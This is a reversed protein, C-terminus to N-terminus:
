QAPRLDEAEPDLDDARQNRVPEAKRIAVYLWKIVAMAAFYFVASAVARHPEDVWQGGGSLHLLPVIAATIGLRPLTQTVGVGVAGLYAVVSIAWAGMLWMQENSSVRRNRAIWGLKAAALWAFSFYPWIAHFQMAFGAILTLYVACLGLLMAYRIRRGLSIMFPIATFFGTANLLIFEMLMMLVVCKVAETGLAFPDVWVWLCWLSTIADPLGIMVVDILRNARASVASSRGSDPM